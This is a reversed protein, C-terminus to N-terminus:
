KLMLVRTEGRRLTLTFRPGQGVIAGTLLDIVAGARGVNVEVPGPKTAHLSIYPGNAFVDCDTRTYLHVGAVQAALRLLAPTMAPTGVFLAAGEARRHLTVAASGDAYRALIEGEKADRVGYLPRLSEVPGFPADLGLARGAATPSAQASVDTLPVLRVGLLRATAEPQTAAADHGGPAYIWVITAGRTVRELRDKQMPTLQWVNLLVYLKAKVKGALLDDLLYQGYPAGVRGLSDRSYFVAGAAAKRGDPSLLPAVDPDIIAAIEPRFPRPSALMPADLVNLQKMRAWFRADQFWGSAGLDMWWTGMNRLSEQAVNRTLEEISEEPTSVHQDMGPFPETALYTHTDDEMLWMKGALAVSEAATMAASTGDLGRDNYSIPSCLVDIDPSSLVRRLGYHGSTAPGNQFLSLEFVYGFFFFVLKRGGSAVRAAHAFDCVCEAMADQQYLAWDILPQETEPYRFIGNPAAHREAPTPVAATEIRADPRRWASALSSDFSYRKRLWARWGALDAPAYGNLPREWSERYFWEGTNQGTPHYGAVSSGYKAELHRILASLREAADHRYRPSAPIGDDRRGDEWQMVDDPHAQKWWAPPEMGIRPILLARPNAHLTADCVSDVGSWDVTEGPAPWPTPIPFSVLHVGAGAAMKVQEAYGNGPGGAYVYQAGPQYFAITLRRSASSRAQMQVRYRHGKELVLQSLHYIHFDPWHGDAPATLTVRLGSAGGVGAGPTVAIKGVTNRADEPWHTWDRTFDADGGEFETRPIVAKGTVADAVEINDLDVTGAGEGFRFHMTGTNTSIASEFTFDIQQWEPGVHVLGSGPAGWFIRARVPAGNIVIRPAGRDVVVHATLPGASAPMRCSGAALLGVLGISFRSKSSM